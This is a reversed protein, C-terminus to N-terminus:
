WRFWLLWAIVSSAIGISGGIVVQLPTHGVFEKLEIESLEEDKALKEIIAIMENTLVAQKGVELLLLLVAIIQIPIMRIKLSKNGLTKRCLWGLLLMVVIAPILTVAHEKTWLQM